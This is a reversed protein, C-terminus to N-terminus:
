APRVAAAPLQAQTEVFPTSPPAAETFGFQSALGLGCLFAMAVSLAVKTKAVLPDYSRM